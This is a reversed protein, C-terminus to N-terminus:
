DEKKLKFKKYIDKLFENFNDYQPIMKKNEVLLLEEMTLQSLIENREKTCSMVYGKDGLKILMIQSDKTLTVKEVIKIYNGSQISQLKSGGLKLSFYILFLIFPLYIMLEFIMKFDM